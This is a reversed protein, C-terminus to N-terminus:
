RKYGFDLTYTGAHSKRHQPSGWRVGAGAHEYPGLINARHPPSGMWAKVIRRPSGKGGSGWGINESVGWSCSCPLYDARQYRGTLAAEGPCTHDFCDTKQMQKSHSRAARALEGNYSLRSMGRKSRQQNVLCVVLQAAKKSSIKRPGKDAGSCGAALASAPSSVSWAGFAAVALAIAALPLVILHRARTPNM